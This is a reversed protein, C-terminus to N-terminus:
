STRLTWGMDALTQSIPVYWMAKFCWPPRYGGDSLKRGNCNTENELSTITGRAQDKRGGDTLAFVPGGSDGNAAAIENPDTQVVKDAFKRLVKNPGVVHRDVEQVRLGCHVGSNAASHCVYDGVNNGGYGAVPKAYGTSENWPGDYVYAGSRGTHPAIGITDDSANGDKQSANGMPQRSYWTRYNGEGCHWATTVLDRSNAGYVGFGTSCITGGPTEVGAGGHWPSGDEGRTLDIVQAERRAHVEVGALASALSEIRPTLEEDSLPASASHAGRAREDEPEYGLDLGSGDLSPGISSIHSPRDATLILPTGDPVLRARAAHLEAKSYKAPLVEVKVGDPLDRIVAAVPQPLDGKWHLLVRNAAPDVEVESFGPIRDREFEERGGTILEVARDLVEQRRMLEIIGPAVKGTLAEEGSAPVPAPRDTGRAQAPRPVDPAGGGPAALAPVTAPVTSLLATAVM